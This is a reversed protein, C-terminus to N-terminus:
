ALKAASTRPARGPWGPLSIGHVDDGGDVHLTAPTHAQLTALVVSRGHICGIWGCTRAGEDILTRRAEM